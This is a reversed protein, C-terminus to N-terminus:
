QIIVEFENWSQIPQADSFMIKNRINKHRYQVPEQTMNTVVIGDSGKDDIKIAMGNDNTITFTTSNGIQVSNLNKIKM